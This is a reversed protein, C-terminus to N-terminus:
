GMRCQYVILQSRGDFLDALSAKGGPGEFVYDKEVKEWPLERRAASLEDRMRNFEKECALFDKRVEVWEEHSVVKHPTM